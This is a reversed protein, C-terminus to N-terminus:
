VGNDSDVAMEVPAVDVSVKMTHRRGGLIVGKVPGIDDYDRAWGLTIHKEGPLVDNTPDFDVWGSGPCYLSVWAHSADAGILRPQGPPPATVLYGSVYRAALGLSRLCGIMLHAFDQCVGRRDRLVDLIPTGITTVGPKYKFDRYIRGNLDTAADLLGRGPQFSARAYDALAESKVVHRSEFTYQRALRLLPDSADSLADTAHEWPQAGCVADPLVTTVMVDSKAEITLGRHPEQLSFWQVHNGFFDLGVRETLPAPTVTLEYEVCTQRNTDRPRIRVVNHCLSVADKYNYETRHTVRYRM